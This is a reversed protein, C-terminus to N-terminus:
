PCSLQRSITRIVLAGSSVVFPEARDQRARTRSAMAGFGRERASEARRHRHEINGDRAEVFGHLPGSMWYVVKGM